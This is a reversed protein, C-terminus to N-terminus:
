FYGTQGSSNSKTSDSAHENLYDHLDKAHGKFGNNFYLEAKTRNHAQIINIANNAFFQEWEKQTHMKAINPGHCYNCTTFYRSEGVQVDASITTVVISIAFLVLKFNLPKFFNIKM